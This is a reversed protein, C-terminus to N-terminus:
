AGRVRSFADNEHAPHVAAAVEAPHIEHVQTVAVAHGLEHEMSIAIRDDVVAGLHEAGLVDDGGFAQDLPARRVGDVRVDGCTLHFHHFIGADVRTWDHIQM